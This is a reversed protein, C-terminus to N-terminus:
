YIELVYPIAQLMVSLSSEREISQPAASFTASARMKENECKRQPISQDPPLLLIQKSGLPCNYAFGSALYDRIKFPLLLPSVPPSLSVERRGSMVLESSCCRLPACDPQCKVFCTDGYPQSLSAYISLPQFRLSTGSNYTSPEFDIAGREPGQASNAIIHFGRLLISEPAGPTRATPPPPAM